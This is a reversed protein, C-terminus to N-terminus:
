KNGMEFYPFGPASFYIQGFDTLWYFGSGTGCVLDEVNLSKSGEIQWLLVFRLIECPGRELLLVKRSWGHYELWIM